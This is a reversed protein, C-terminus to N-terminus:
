VAGHEMAKQGSFCLPPWLDTGSARRRCFAKSKYSSPAETHFLKTEFESLAQGVLDGWAPDLRLSDPPSLALQRAALPCPSDWSRSGCCFVVSPTASVVSTYKKVTRSPLFGLDLDWLTLKWHPSEEQSTSALKTSHDWTAKKKKWTNAYLAHLSLFPTPHLLSEPERRMLASKM